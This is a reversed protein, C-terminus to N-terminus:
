VGKIEDTNIHIDRDVIIRDALADRLWQEM